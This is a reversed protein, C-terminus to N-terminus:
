FVVSIKLVFISIGRINKSCSHMKQRYVDRKIVCNVHNMVDICCSIWKSISSFDNKDTNPIYLICIYHQRIDFIDLSTSLISLKRAKALFNDNREVSNSIKSM